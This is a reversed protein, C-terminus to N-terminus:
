VENKPMKRPIWSVSILATFRKTRRFVISSIWDICVEALCKSDRWVRVLKLAMQCMFTINDEGFTTSSKNSDTVTSSFYSNQEGNANVIPFKCKALQRHLCSAMQRIFIIIKWPVIRWISNRFACKQFGKSLALSHPRLGL